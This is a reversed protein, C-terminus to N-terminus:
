ARRGAPPRSRAPLAARCARARSRQDHRSSTSSCTSTPPSTSRRRPFTARASTRTARRCRRSFSAGPDERPPRRAYVDPRPRERVQGRSLQRLRARGAGERGQRRGELVARAADARAGADVAAILAVLAVSVGTRLMAPRRASRITLVDLAACHAVGGASAFRLGGFLHSGADADVRQGRVAQRARARACRGVRQAVAFADAEFEHRRSYLSSLPGLMFTFVPLALFFLILAVGPREPSVPM